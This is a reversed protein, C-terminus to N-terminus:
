MLFRFLFVVNSVIIEETAIIGIIEVIEATEVTEVIEVTVVIEHIVTIKTAKAGISDHDNVPLNNVM